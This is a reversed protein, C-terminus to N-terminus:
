AGPIITQVEYRGLADAKMLGRLKFPPSPELFDGPKKKDYFGADDGHWIEIMTGPLPTRCDESVVRGRLMLKQGPEDDAALKLRFIPASVNYMPGLIDPETVKCDKAAALVPLGGVVAAGLTSVSRQLFRRRPQYAQMKYKRHDSM